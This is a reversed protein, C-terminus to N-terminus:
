FFRLRWWDYKTAHKSFWWYGDDWELKVSRWGPPVKPFPYFPGIYPWANSPYSTPYAVRSYNNYPAYSPWAYPPMRPPNAEAPSPAPASFLPTPENSPAPANLDPIKEPQREQPPPLTPLNRPTEAQVRTIPTPDMRDLVREVGPVGQVIRLVEERQMQDLVSGTLIATHDHYNIDISYNHLQGSQRLNRAITDALQQNTSAVRTPLADGPTLGLPSPETPSQAPLLGGRVLCLGLVTALWYRSRSFVAVDEQRQAL